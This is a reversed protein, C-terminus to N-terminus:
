CEALRRVVRGAEAAVARLGPPGTLGAWNGAQQDLHGQPTGARPAVAGAPGGLEEDARAREAQLAAVAHAPLEPVPMGGQVHREVGDQPEM